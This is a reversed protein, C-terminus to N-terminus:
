KVFLRNKISKIIKKKIEKNTSCSYSGTFHEKGCNMCKKEKSCKSGEPCSGLCSYCKRNKHCHEITHGVELCKFCRLIKVYPAIRYKIFDIIIYPRLFLRKATQENTGFVVNRTGSRGIFTRIIQPEYGLLIELERLIEMDDWQEPIGLMIFKFKNNNMRDIRIVDQINEKIFNELKEVAPQTNMTIFVDGNKSIKIDDPKDLRSHNRSLEELIAKADTIDKTIVRLIQVNENKLISLKEKLKNIELELRSNEEREINSEIISRDSENYTYKVEEVVIDRMETFLAITENTVKSGRRDRLVGGFWDLLSIIKIVSIGGDENDQTEDVIMELKQRASDGM